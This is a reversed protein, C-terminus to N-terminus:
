LVRNCDRCYYGDKEDGGWVCKKKTINCMITDKEWIGCYKCVCKIVDPNKSLKFEHKCNKQKFELKQYDLIRKREKEIYIPDLEKCGHCQSNIIPNCYCKKGQARRHDICLYSGDSPCECEIEWVNLPNNYIPKKGCVHKHHIWDNIQCKKSCYYISKCNACKLNTKNDCVYCQNYESMREMNGRTKKKISLDCDDILFIM